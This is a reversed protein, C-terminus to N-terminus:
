QPLPEFDTAEGDCDPHLGPTFRARRCKKCIWGAQEETHEVKALEVLPLPGCTVAETYLEVSRKLAALIQTHTANWATGKSAKVTLTFRQVVLVPRHDPAPAPAGPITVTPEGQCALEVLRLLRAGPVTAACEWADAREELREPESREWAALEKLNM